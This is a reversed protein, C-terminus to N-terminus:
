GAPPRSRSWNEGFAFRDPLQSTSWSTACLLKENRSDGPRRVAAVSRRGIHPIAPLTDAPDRRRAGARACTSPSRAGRGRSARRAEDLVPDPRPTWRRRDDVEDRAVLRDVVLVPRDDDDQVALDVVIWSSRSSSSRARGGSRSRPGVGLDDDVEVLLVAVVAHLASRPINANASQSSRAAAAAARARGPRCSAARRRSRRRCAEPEGRLALAIRWSGSIAGRRRSRRSRCSGRLELVHRVRQARERASRFSGGACM